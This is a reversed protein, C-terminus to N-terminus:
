PSKFSIIEEVYGRRIWCPYRIAKANKANSYISRVTFENREHNISWFMKSMRAAGVLYAEATTRAMETLSDVNVVLDFPGAVENYAVPPLIQLPSPRAEGWLNIVESGLTRGLFYAQSVGTLPIDVITYNSVGMKMTYYAARGLGAGIELIRAGRINGVLERTRWAQYLAHVARYNAVGRSTQLGVEGNFLNPFDISFGLEADLSELLSEPDPSDAYDENTEPNEIRKLGIARVLQLLSDYALKHNWDFWFESNSSRSDKSQLSDFGYFLMSNAPNRLLSQIAEPSGNLLTEHTQRNAEAFENLWISQRSGLPTATASRYAATARQILEHDNIPGPAGPVVGGKGALRWPHHHLIRDMHRREATERVSSALSDRERTTAAFKERLKYADIVANFTKRGFGM